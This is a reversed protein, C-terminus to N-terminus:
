ERTPEGKIQHLFPTIRSVLTVAEREELQIGFRETHGRYEFTVTGPGFGYFDSNSERSFLFPERHTSVRMDCVGAVSYRRARGRWIVERKISLVDAELEVVEKGVLTWLLVYLASFGGVGWGLLWVLTFPSARGSLLGFGVMLVGLAWMVLFAPAFAIIYVLKPSEIEVRFGDERHYFTVRSSLRSPRPSLTGM